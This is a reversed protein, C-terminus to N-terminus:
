GVRREADRQEPQGVRREVDRLEPQGTALRVTSRTMRSEREILERLDTFTQPTSRAIEALQGLIGHLNLAPSIFQDILAFRREEDSWHQEALRQLEALQAEIVQLREFLLALGPESVEAVGHPKQSM